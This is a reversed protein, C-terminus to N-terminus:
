SETTTESSSYSVEQLPTFDVSPSPSDATQTGWVTDHNDKWYYNSGSEVSTVEGTNPDRLDTTGLITNSWKNSLDDMTKERNNYTETIINSVDSSADIGSGAYPSSYAPSIPYQVPNISGTYQGQGSSVGPYQGINSVMRPYQGQSATGPYTSQNVMASPYQGLSNQAKQNQIWVSNYKFSNVARELVSRALLERSDPAIYGILKSVQWLYSGSGLDRKETVALCYGQWREGNVEITFTTEGANADLPLGSQRYVANIAQSLDPRDQDGNYVVGPIDKMVYDAYAKAFEKGTMYQKAKLYLNYEPYYETGDVLGLSDPMETMSIYLPIRTDGYIIGVKNDPSDIEVGLRLDGPNPELLGGTVNWGMPVELSFADKKPDEWVDYQVNQSQSSEPKIFSFSKLIRILTTSTDNFKLTPAAIAFLMGSRNDLVCLIAASGQVGGDSYNLAMVVEDPRELLRQFGEISAGPFQSAFMSPIKNLFNMATIQQDTIFPYIIVFASGNQSKIEISEKGPTEVSWGNPHSVQFGLPDKHVTWDGECFALNAGIFLIITSILSYVFIKSPSM